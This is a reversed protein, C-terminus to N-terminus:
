SHPALYGVIAAYHLISGCLVFVHFIAHHHKLGHWGFFIMGLTYSVGGGLVLAMPVLGLAEYIPKIGVIGAWGMLLYLVIGFAKFRDRFILKVTIGILALLWVFGLMSGGLMNRLVMLIFPTYTGAILLYICCHDLLQLMRKRKSHIVTHYSTSAAYLVVLSVGYVISGTLFWGDGSLVALIVLVAFGVVSLALGFGHTIANAVEEITMESLHARIM